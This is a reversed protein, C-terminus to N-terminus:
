PEENQEEEESFSIAQLEETKDKWSDQGWDGISLSFTLRRFEMKKALEVFDFLQHRNKQQLVVWMRTYPRDMQNAYKNLNTFNEVVKEFNSKRRISEFVEKNAGDFSTQVEGVGSDILREIHHRIHLLSGSIVTRM